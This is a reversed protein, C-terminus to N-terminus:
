KNAVIVKFGGVSMKKMDFPMTKFKAPDMRPDKMVKKNVSNRNAKSKFVIFAFVATEDTKLKCLKGFPLGWPSKLDDGVSEYYALAGHEMWVKCSLRAMKKYNAVNKKKIPILFGDVYHAM